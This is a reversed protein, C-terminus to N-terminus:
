DTIVVDAALIAAVLGDWEEPPAAEAPLPRREIGADAVGAVMAEAVMADPLTGDPTTLVLIRKM